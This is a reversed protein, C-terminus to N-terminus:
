HLDNRKVIFFVFINKMRRHINLLLSLICDKTFQNSVTVSIFLIFFVFFIPKLVCLLVFGSFYFLFMLFPKLDRKGQFRRSFLKWNWNLEIVYADNRKPSSLHWLKLSVSSSSSILSSKGLHFYDNFSTSFFPHHSIFTPGKWLVVVAYRQVNREENNPFNQHM